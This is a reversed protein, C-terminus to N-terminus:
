IEWDQQDAEEDQIFQRRVRERPTKASPASQLNATRAEGGKRGVLGSARADGDADNASSAPWRQEDDVLLHDCDTQEAM